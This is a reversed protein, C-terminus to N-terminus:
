EAGIHARAEASRARGRVLARTSRWLEYFGIAENLGDDFPKNWYYRGKLYAQYADADPDADRGHGALAGAGDGALARHAGAVDTQM